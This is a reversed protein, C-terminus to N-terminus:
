SKYHRFCAYYIYTPYLCLFNIVKAFEKNINKEEYDVEMKEFREEIVKQRTLLEEIKEKIETNQRLIRELIRTTRDGDTKIRTNFIIIIEIFYFFILFIIVM